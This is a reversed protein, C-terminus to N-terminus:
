GRVHPREEEMVGGMERAWMAKERSKRRRKRSELYKVTNGDKKARM